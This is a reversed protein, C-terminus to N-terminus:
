EEEIIKGERGEKGKGVVTNPIMFCLKLMEEFTGFVKM